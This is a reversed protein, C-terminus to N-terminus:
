LTKLMILKENYTKEEEFGLKKYLNVAKINKPQVELKLSSFGLDTGYAIATKLLISAIGKKQYGADISVNSIFAIKNTTDNFYVSVLGILENNHWAEFNIAKGLLKKGYEQINVYSSLPPEFYDDCILLHKVISDLDSVNIHYNINFSISNM